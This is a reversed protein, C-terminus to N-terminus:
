YRDYNGKLVQTCGPVPFAPSPCGEKGGAAASLGSGRPVLRAAAGAAPLPCGAAPLPLRGGGVPSAPGVAVAPSTTAGLPQQCGPRGPAPGAPPLGRAARPHSPAASRSGAGPPRSFGGAFGKAEAPGRRSELGAEGGGAARPETQEQGELSGRQLVDGAQNGAGRM